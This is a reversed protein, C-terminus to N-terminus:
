GFRVWKHHVVANRADEDSFFNRAEARQLGLAAKFYSAGQVAERESMVHLTGSVERGANLRRAAGIHLTVHKMAM